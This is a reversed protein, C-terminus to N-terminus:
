AAAELPSASNLVERVKSELEQPTFPKALYSYQTDRVGYVSARDKTYGSMYLVRIEPRLVGLRAALEAGSMGPMVVDTLLLHIAGEHVESRALAEEGSAAELVRYGRAELVGRVLSRLNEEDDVVLVTETGTPQRAPAAPRLEITVPVDEMRPLFVRFTTGKGAESEVSIYGGSQKVIGYVTALGLGTGKGQEKTTFFPEYIHSQTESDMGCGTDSVILTVYRGPELGVHQRAGAEDIDVNATEVTLTGGKPMADRANVALNLIIQEIQVPDAKVRGLQGAPATKLEIDESILGHLMGQVRAILANLDLIEAAMVQRRGFALLQRTLKAARDAAKQIERVQGLLPGEPSAADAVLEAYGSIITLLNNFDHAVGGALQGIAEMKQAQRLQEELSKRQTIDRSVIVVSVPEGQQNRILSGQSEILRTTKDDLLFRYETRQGIGTRVTEQFIAKIHERDDPHIENFSITGRLTDPNSIINKYSPSNYVRRGELDVVAILDTVNESILRFLTESQRLKEAAQKRETMDRINCEIVKKEGSWYANSVFEVDVRKGSRSELPLDDYRIYENEQLTRFAGQSIRQDKFPGIDWLPRGLFEEHSYGLLSEMFPNVDIIEGTAADLILIGDKAAEFLRRYRVESASLNDAARKRETIDRQIALFRTIDGHEDLIPNASTEVDVLRGDKTKNVWEGKVVRKDLITKWFSAYEESSKEGGKLVRPTTKAVVEEASYGYLRTFEPNVFTFVGERDTMFIVEGSTDVAKRLTVLAEKARQREERLRKEELARRIAHPLRAPHDKIVYDTVGKKICEVAAEEGLTGTVLIFPTDPADKQAIQLADMGSWDCLNYDSLIVDYSQSCLKHRFKDLTSAVDAHPEFGARELDRLCLEADEPTDEAYLIRLPRKTVSNPESTPKSM